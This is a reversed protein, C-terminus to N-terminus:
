KENLEIDASRTEITIKSIGNGVIGAAYTASGKTRFQLPFDTKIDGHKATLEVNGEFGKPM